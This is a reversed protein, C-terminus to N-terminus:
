VFVLGFMCGGVFLGRVLFVLCVWVLGCVVGFYVFCGGLGFVWVWCVGFCGFFGGCGGFGGFVFGVVVGGGWLLWGLCGSVGGVWMVLGGGFGFLVICFGFISGVIWGFGNFGGCLSVGFGVGWIVFGVGGVVVELIGWGCGWIGLFGGIWVYGDFSVGGGVLWVVGIGWWVFVVCNLWFDIGVGGVIGFDLVFGVVVGVGFYSEKVGM